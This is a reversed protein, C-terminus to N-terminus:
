QGAPSRMQSFLHGPASSGPWRAWVTEFVAQCILLTIIRFSCELLAIQSTVFHGWGGRSFFFFFFFHIFYMIYMFSKLLYFEEDKLSITNNNKSLHISIIEFQMQFFFFFNENVVSVALM